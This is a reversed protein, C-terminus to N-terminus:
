VQSKVGISNQSFVTRLGGHSKVGITYSLVGNETGGTIPCWHHESPVGNETEGQSMVGITYHSFVSWLGVTNGGITHQSFVMRLEGQSIVRFTKQAYLTKLGGQSKFVTNNQSFVM